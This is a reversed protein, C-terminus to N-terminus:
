KITKPKEAEEQIRRQVEEQPAAPGAHPAIRTNLLRLQEAKLRNREAENPAERIQHMLDHLKTLFEQTRELEDVREEASMPKPNEPVSFGGGGQAGAAAPLLMLGALITSEMRAM